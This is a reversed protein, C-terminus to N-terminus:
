IYSFMFRMIVLMYWHAAYDDPNQNNYYMAAISHPCPIGSLDWRRCACTIEKLNIVYTDSGDSVVFNSYEWDGCWNPSWRNVDKKAKDLIKKIMPCIEGFYRLMYDRLRVIRNTMYFKLGKVLSIVPQERCEIISSNFAECM